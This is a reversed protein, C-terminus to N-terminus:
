QYKSFLWGDRAIVDGKNYWTIFILIIDNRSVRLNIMYMKCINM